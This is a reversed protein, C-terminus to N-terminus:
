SFSSPLPDREVAAFREAQAFTFAEPGPGQHQLRLLRLRAEAPTPRHAAPVWWLCTHPAAMAEFWERRRRLYERHESHSSFTRLAEVSEWLSLNVIM